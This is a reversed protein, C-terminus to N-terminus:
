EGKGNRAAHLRKRWGRVNQIYVASMGEQRRANWRYFKAREPFLVYAVMSLARSYCLSAVMWLFAANPHNGILKPDRASGAFQHSTKLLKELVITLEARTAKAFVTKPRIM